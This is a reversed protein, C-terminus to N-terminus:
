ASSTLIASFAPALTSSSVEPADSSAASSDSALGSSTFGLRVSFLVAQQARGKRGVVDVRQALRKGGVSTKGTNGPNDDRHTSGTRYAEMLATREAGLRGRNRSHVCRTGTVRGDGAKRMGNRSTGVVDRHKLGGIGAALEVGYGLVPWRTM